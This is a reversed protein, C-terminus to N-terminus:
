RAGGDPTAVARSPCNSGSCVVELAAGAACRETSTPGVQVMSDQCGAPAGPKCRCAIYLRPSEHGSDSCAALLAVSLLLRKM